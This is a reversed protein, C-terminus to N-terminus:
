KPQELRGAVPDCPPLEVGPKFNTKIGVILQRWFDRDKTSLQAYLPENQLYNRKSYHSAFRSYALETLNDVLAQPQPTQTSAM